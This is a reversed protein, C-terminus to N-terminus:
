PISTHRAGRIHAPCPLMASTGLHIVSRLCPIISCYSDSRHQLAQPCHSGSLHKWIAFHCAPDGTLRPIHVGHRRFFMRLVSLLDGSILGVAHISGRSSLGSFSLASSPRILSTGAALS